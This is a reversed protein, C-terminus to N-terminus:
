PDPMKQVSNLIENTNIRAKLQRLYSYLGLEARSYFPFEPRALKAELCQKRVQFGIDFLSKDDFSVLMQKSGSQPFVKEFLQIETQLVQMAKPNGKSISDGWLLNLMRRQGTEGKLWVREVFCQILDDFYPAFRKVCGFDVLGISGDQSFLYNGPHPDAHFANVKHVQFLFLELLRRGLTNKSEQSPKQELWETLTKGEIFSLTLVRDTSLNRFVKPLHVYPLVRLKQTFFEINDAEQTYDTEKLIGQELEEIVDKPVHGGLRSTFVASRLM